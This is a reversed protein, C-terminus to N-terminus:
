AKSMLIGNSFHTWSMLSPLAVVSCYKTSSFSHARISSSIAALLQLTRVRGLVSSGCSTRGLSARRAKGEPLGASPFRQVPTPTCPTCTPPTMFERRDFRPDAQDDSGAHGALDFSVGGPAM